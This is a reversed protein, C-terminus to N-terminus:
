LDLALSFCVILSCPRTLTVSPYHKAYKNSRICCFRRVSHQLMPHSTALERTRSYGTRCRSCCWRSCARAHASPHCMWMRTKPHRAGGLLAQSFFGFVFSPYTQCSPTSLINSPHQGTQGFPGSYLRLRPTSPVAAAVAVAVVAAVAGAHWRAVWRRRGWSSTCVGWSSTYM